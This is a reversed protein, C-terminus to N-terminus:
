KEDGDDPGIQVDVAGDGVDVQVGGKDASQGEKAEASPLNVDVDVGEGGGIDVRIGSSQSDETTDPSPSAERNPSGVVSNPSEVPAQRNEHQATPPQCGAVHVLFASAVTGILVQSRFYM